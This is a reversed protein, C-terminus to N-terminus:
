GLLRRHVRNGLKYCRMINTHVLDPSLEAHSTIPPEPIRNEEM